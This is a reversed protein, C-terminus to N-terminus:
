QQKEQEQQTHTHTHKKKKKKKGALGPNLTIRTKLNVFSVNQSFFAIIKIFVYKRNNNESDFKKNKPWSIFIFNRGLGLNAYDHKPCSPGEPTGWIPM